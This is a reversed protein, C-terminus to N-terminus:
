RALVGVCATDAQESQWPLPAHSQKIEDETWQYHFSPLTDRQELQGRDVWQRIPFDRVSWPEALTDVYALACNTTGLDVGVVYRSLEESSTDVM